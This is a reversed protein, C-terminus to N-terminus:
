GDPAARNTVDAKTVGRYEVRWVHGQRPRGISRLAAREALHYTVGAGGRARPCGSLLPRRVRRAAAPWRRTSTRDEFEDVRTLGDRRGEPDVARGTWWM